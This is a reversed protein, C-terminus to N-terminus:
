RASSQRWSHGKTVAVGSSCKASKCRHPNQDSEPLQRWFKMLTVDAASVLLIWVDMNIKDAFEKWTSSARRTGSRVLETEMEVDPQAEMADEPVPMNEKEVRLQSLIQPVPPHIAHARKTSSFVPNDEVHKPTDPQKSGGVASPIVPVVDTANPNILQEFRERCTTMHRSSARLCESSGQTEGHRQFLSKSIYNKRDETMPEGTLERPNRPVVTSNKFANQQWHKRATRRQSLREGGEDPRDLSTETVKSPDLKGM